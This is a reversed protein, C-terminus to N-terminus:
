GTGCLEAATKDPKMDPLFGFQKVLAWHEESDMFEALEKNFAEVLDQDEKRFAFAGYGKEVEGDLVPFFQPSSELSTDGLRRVYSRVTLATLGVADIEGDRLAQVAEDFSAYLRQRDAPIAAALAYNPEVTGSILGVKADQSYSISLYDTIDKPNGAKILFAEGVVYTPNTFAVQKCRAPTIFMGATVVDVAGSQVSPILQSWDLATGELRIEPDIRALIARAVEPSEGTLHGDETIYGYPRENAVAAKMVNERKIRELTSEGFAESCVALLVLGLALTVFSLSAISSRVM